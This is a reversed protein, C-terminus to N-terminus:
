RGPLKRGEELWGRLDSLSREWGPGLGAVYADWSAGEGLGEHRVRVRTGGDEAELEVSLRMGELLEGEPTSYRLDKVVLRCSPEFVEFTGLVHYGDESDEDAYWGLAWNGEVRRGIVAADALWSLVEQVETFATFVREPLARVVTELCVSSM